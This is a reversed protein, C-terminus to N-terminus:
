RTPKLNHPNTEELHVVNFPDIDNKKYTNLINIM